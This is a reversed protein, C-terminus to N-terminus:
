VPVRLEADKKEKLESPDKGGPINTKLGLAEAEAKAYGKTFMDGHPIIAFYIIDSNFTVQCSKLEAIRGEKVIKAFETWTIEPIDSM